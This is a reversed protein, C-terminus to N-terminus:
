DTVECCVSGTKCSIRSPQWVATSPSSASVCERVSACPVPGVPRRGAARCASSATLRAPVIDVNRRAVQSEFRVHRPERPSSSSRRSM